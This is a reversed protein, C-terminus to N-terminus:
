GKLYVWCRQAESVFGALDRHETCPLAIISHVSWDQEVAGVARVLGRRVLSRNVFYSLDTRDLASPDLVEACVEYGRGSDDLYRFGLRQAGFRARVFRGGSDRMLLLDSGVEMGEVEGSREVAYLPDDLVVCDVRGEDALRLNGEDTSVTVRCETGEALLRTAAALLCRESVITGAIHLAPDDQLRLTCAEFRTVLDRGSPTLVTGRSTSSVLDEGVKVEADKVYKYLVPASIGLAAAAGKLSGRDRVAVLAEMQRRTVEGEETVFVV